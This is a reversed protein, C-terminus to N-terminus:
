GKESMPHMIEVTGTGAKLVTNGDRQQGDVLMIADAPAGFGALGSRVDNLTSGPRVFHRAKHAGYWVDIQFGKM